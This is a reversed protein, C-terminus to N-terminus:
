DTIRVGRFIADHQLNPSLQNFAARTLTKPAVAQPAADIPTQEQREALSNLIALAAAPPTMAAKICADAMDPTKALACLRRIERAQELRATAQARTHPTALLVGALATEHKEVCLEYLAQPPLPAEATPEAPTVDPVPAAEPAPEPAPAPEPTPDVAPTIIEDTMVTELTPPNKFRTLPHVALAAIRLPEDIADIFGAALAERATYWTEARMLDRVADPELGTRRAYIGVIQGAVSDLLDSQKLLDASTGTAVTRPDHIMWLANDAMRIEDAALAIVTAASACLADIHAVIRAPHRTLANHIALAEFVDGGPSNIRVTITELAGLGELRELLAQSSQGGLGIEQYFLLEATKRAARLRVWPNNPM